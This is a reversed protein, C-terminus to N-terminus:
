YTNTSITLATRLFTSAACDPLHMWNSHCMRQKWGVVGISLTSRILLGNSYTHFRSVSHLMVNKGILIRRELTMTVLWSSSIPQGCLKCICLCNHEFRTSSTCEYFFLSWGILCWYKGTLGIINTTLSKFIVFTLWRITVLAWLYSHTHFSVKM